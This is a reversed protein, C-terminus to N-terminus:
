FQLLPDQHGTLKAFVPQSGEQDMLMLIDRLLVRADANRLSDRFTGLKVQQAKSTTQIFDLLLEKEKPELKVDYPEISKIFEQQPLAKADAATEAQASLSSAVLTLTLLFLTRM